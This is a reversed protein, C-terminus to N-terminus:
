LLQPNRQWVAWTLVSAFCVWAAYPILLISAARRIRWFAATTASILGLLVLVDAFALAGNRWAFFLWSWLANAGLQALFLALASARARSEPERWVLWASIAMLLYLFTWVPGFISAPPAWAPKVLQAYFSAADISAIAGLGAAAFVVALWAAFGIAQAVRSRPAHMRYPM